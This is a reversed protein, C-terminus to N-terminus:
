RQFGALYGCVDTIFPQLFLLFCLHIFQNILVAAFDPCTAKSRKRSEEPICSLYRESGKFIAAQCSTLSIYETRQEVTSFKIRYFLTNKFIGGYECSFVPTTEKKIFNCVKLGAVKNFLSELM